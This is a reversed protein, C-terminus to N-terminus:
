PKERKDSTGRGGAKNKNERKPPIATNENERKGLGEIM